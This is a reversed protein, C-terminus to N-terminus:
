FVKHIALSNAKNLDLRNVEALGKTKELFVTNGLKTGPNFNGSFPTTIWVDEVLAM